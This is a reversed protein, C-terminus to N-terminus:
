AMDVVNNEEHVEADNLKGGDSQKRSSGAQAPQANEPRIGADNLWSRTAEQRDINLKFALFGIEDWAAKVGSTRSLCVTRHCKFLDGHTGSFIGACQKGNCFPCTPFSKWNGNSPGHGYKEMLHKLPLKHRAEQLKATYDNMVRTKQLGTAPTSSCDCPIKRKKKTGLLNPQNCPLHTITAAFITM